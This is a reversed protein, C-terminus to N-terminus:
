CDASQQGSSASRVLNLNEVVKSTSYSRNLTYLHIGAVGNRWLDEVQRSAYEVGIERVANDDDAFKELKDDLQQPIRAGCLATFRRIQGTSLIPLIGAVIPVHINWRDARELFRYYDANDFFLQTILFQAGADVKKKLFAMDSELDPSELHGEPFCAAGIAFDHNKRIHEILEAAYQYGDDAPIFKTEGRPPDGRLGLVNEINAPELLALAAQVEEKTQAACTVHCIVELDTEERIHRVIGITTDRTGGGAGYTVSVFDPKCSRLIEINRFLADAGQETNPPYFEFSVTRRGSAFIETIKM